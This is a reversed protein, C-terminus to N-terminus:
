LFTRDDYQLHRYSLFVNADGTWGMREDRQPCDTPVALFNSRQGWVINNFLQNIDANASEYHSFQEGISELVIGEVDSLVPATDLGDISIYRYGHQTFPPEFTEGAADGKFTYFDTSIASRYNDMYM